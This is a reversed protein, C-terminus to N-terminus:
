PYFALVRYGTIRTNGLNVVLTAALNSESQATLEAPAALDQPALVRRLVPQDQADTLTLEIAPMEVSTESRNKLTLSFQYQDTRTKHFTSGDVVVAAIQRYPGLECQLPGCLQELYPRVPPWTAAIWRREHVAAQLLLGCLLVLGLLVLGLRVSTKRWFAKRRAARVFSLEGTLADQDSETAAQEASSSGHDKEALVGKPEPPDPVVEPQADVPLESETSPFPQLQEPTAHDRQFIAQKEPEEEPAPPLSSRRALVENLAEHLDSDTPPDQAASAAETERPGADTPEPDPGPEVGEGDGEDLLPAPLEYGMPRPMPLPEPSFEITPWEMAPTHTVPPDLSPLDSPVVWALPPLPAQMLRSMEGSRAPPAPDAALFAPVAPEPFQLTKMAHGPEKAPEFASEAMSPTAAQPKEAPVPLPRSAPAGWARAPPETRPVPQPPPRVKHLAMEPMLAPPLAPQLHASADFVQQCHGCRVWGESIRLQDAVVKFM